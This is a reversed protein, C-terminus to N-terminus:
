EGTDTEINYLDRQQEESMGKRDHVLADRRQEYANRLASYYDLSAAKAERVDKLVRARANVVDGAGAGFSYVYDIFFPYVRSFADAVLGVTDRPDSPGFFPLVLYPGPPVGWYGLTQGFDENHQELGWTTAPDFFGAVGFTANVVFRGVDSAAAVPKAQLLNNGAVIPVRLNQFFNSLCQKVRAPAITDWATAVPALVYTDVTDNLWFIKRNMNELPDRDSRESPESAATSLSPSLWSLGLSTVAIFAALRALTRM